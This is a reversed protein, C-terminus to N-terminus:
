KHEKYTTGDFKLLSTEYSTSEKSQCEGNEDEFDITEGLTTKVTINFYGHTKETEMILTKKESLTTGICPGDLEARNDEVTFHPLIKQLDNEKQVFLSLREGYYPNARSSGTFLLKVGFARTNETVIYPATDIQIADLIMADSVWGNTKHSEFYHYSLSNTALNVVALHTNLEFMEEPHGEAIEPVIVVAENPSHPLVKFANLKDIRNEPSINYTESVLDFYIEDLNMEEMEGNSKIKVINTNKFPLNEENAVHYTYEIKHKKIITNYQTWEQEKEDYGVMESDIPTGEKTYNVLMSQLTEKNVIITLVATYFDESLVLRYGSVAQYHYEELHWNEYITPLGLAESDITKIDDEDIFSDFNTNEVDQASVDSRM